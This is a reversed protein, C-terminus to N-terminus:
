QWLEPDIGRTEKLHKQFSDSQKQNWIGCMWDLDHYRQSSTKQRGIVTEELIGVVAKNLSIHERHAKDRIVKEVPPPIRRITLATM